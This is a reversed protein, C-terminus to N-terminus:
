DQSSSSTVYQLHRMLGPLRKRKKLPKIHKSTSADSTLVKLNSTVNKTLPKTSSSSTPQSNPIVTSFRPSSVNYIYKNANENFLNETTGTELTKQVYLMKLDHLEQQLNLIKKEVSQIQIKIKHKNNNKKM